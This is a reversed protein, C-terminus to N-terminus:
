FTDGFRKKATKTRVTDREREKNQNIVNFFFILFGPKQDPEVTKMVNLEIQKSCPNQNLTKKSEILNVVKKKTNATEWCIHTKNYILYPIYM